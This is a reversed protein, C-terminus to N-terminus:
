DPRGMRERATEDWLERVMADLLQGSADDFYQWFMMGALGQERVYRAKLGLSKPDEISIFVHRTRHWLYPAQAVDDWGRMWGADSALLAEIGPPTTDPRSALPVGPQYLGNREPRVQEWGRSYFPVGVTLKSSPVGAARFDAVAREISLQKDDDPHMRLNAHHGAIRDVSQVRFDYTMLNVLDVSRAVAGMETHAIFNPFAGAAMTVLQSRGSQRGEADLATRLDAMLATFNTTDEPRHPNQDGPLAPYEWDIDVGDLAHRRVFRVASDVFRRRSEETLAADSFGKSWTWGGVSVLIKVHPHARRLETLARLNDTDQPAGEVVLGDIVNAFAYNVHTLKEVDVDGPALTRGNAFVYGVIARDRAVPVPAPSRTSTVGAWSAAFVLIALLRTM